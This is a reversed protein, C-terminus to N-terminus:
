NYKNKLEPYVEDYEEQSGRYHKDFIDPYIKGLLVLNLDLFQRPTLSVHKKQYIANGGADVLLLITGDQKVIMLRTFAREFKTHPKSEDFIMRIREYMPRTLPRYNHEKMTQPTIAAMTEFGFPVFYIVAFTKPKSQSVISYSLLQLLVVMFICSCMRFLKTKM